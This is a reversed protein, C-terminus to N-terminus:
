TNDEPAEVLIDRLDGLFGLALCETPTCARVTGNGNADFTTREREIRAEEHRVLDILATVERSSLLVTYIAM